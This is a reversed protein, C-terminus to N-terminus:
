ELEVKKNLLKNARYYVFILLAMLITLGISIASGFPWNRSILFESKIVNGVLLVKAGGLLDAVYFMGMAPLLVLLCGAVIGPMTLPLIVRFFRQVANAGLDRAAELLRGDLKEIASYLPLIMFPLLLYVLGIIVAVETNLIRIPESLIGMDMLMTNLVGKVGLFVKMGYIRILSNTWFPLVVLFLLFPRYKPNIKSVMFAFPYGILLCIITAIGSMYLSNWVVQAYLPNFLNAYNDLTFPLAYFDSGDRTLFSVTLVLLNPILVFFILWSFIIAVTIKQFKNNIIKM